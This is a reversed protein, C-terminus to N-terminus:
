QITTPTVDITQPQRKQVIAAVRAALETDSLKKLSEAIQPLYQQEATPNPKPELDAAKTVYKILDAKVPAPTSPHHILDYATVLLEEAMIKAKERFSLGKAKIEARYDVVRQMFTPNKKLKEFQEPTVNYRELIKPLDDLALALEFCLRHDFPEFYTKIEDM